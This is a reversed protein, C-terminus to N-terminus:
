FWFRTEKSFAVGEVNQAMHGVEDMEDHERVGAGGGGAGAAAAGSSMMLTLHVTCGVTVFSLRQQLGRAQQQAALSLRLAALRPPRSAIALATKGGAALQLLHDGKKLARM